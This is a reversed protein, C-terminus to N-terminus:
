GNARDGEDLADDSPQEVTGERQMWRLVMWCLAAWAAGVCWGALVDTPYHVGLYVRSAGVLITLIVALGIFFIRLRWSNHQSALLAGLTLFTVASLTAHGSPFSYSFVRAAPEVIEPRPRAFVAKLANSLFMGGAVSALVWLAAVSRRMLIMYAMTAFVIIGLVTYSGLATIDRAAEELWPPGIPDSIDGPPRLALLVSEDFKALDGDAVESAIHGFALLLTAALFIGGLLWLEPRNRWAKAPLSKALAIVNARTEAAV